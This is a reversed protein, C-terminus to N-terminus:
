IEEERPRLPYRASGTWACGATGCNPSCCTAYATGLTVLPVALALPAATYMWANSRAM